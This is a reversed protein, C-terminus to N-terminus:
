LGSRDRDGAGDDARSAPLDWDECRRRAGDASPGDRRQSRTRRFAAASARRRGTRGHQHDRPTGRALGDRASDGARVADSLRSVTVEVVAAKLKPWSDFGYARALVLQADHLAFTGADADGDRYHLNVEAVIDADGARFATLLEKTQRRLQHVDSHARLSHTPASV